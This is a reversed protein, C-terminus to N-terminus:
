LMLNRYEFSLKTKIWFLDWFNETVPITWPNKICLFDVWLSFRPQLKQFGQSKQILPLRGAQSGWHCSAEYSPRKLLVFWYGCIHTRLFAPINPLQRDPLNRISSTLIAAILNLERHAKEHCEWTFGKQKGQYKEIWKQSNGVIDICCFGSHTQWILCSLVETWVMCPPTSLSTIQGWQLKSTFM